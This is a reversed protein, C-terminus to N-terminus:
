FKLKSNQHLNLGEPINYWTLQYTTVSLKLSQLAKVETTVLVSCDKLVSVLLAQQCLKTSLFVQMGMYHDM